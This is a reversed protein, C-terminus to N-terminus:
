FDSKRFVKGIIYMIYGLIGGATNLIMDDIDFVGVKYYLQLTEIILSFTFTLLAILVIGTKNRKIMPIIVGFPVFALVNGGLNLLAVFSFNSKLVYYFRKIEMFPVLNYRYGRASGVRGLKESFFMFYIVGFIYVLFIVISVFTFLGNNNKSKKM